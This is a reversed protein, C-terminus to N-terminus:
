ELKGRAQSSPLLSPNGLLMLNLLAPLPDWVSNKKNQERFEGRRGLLLVESCFEARFGWQLSHDLSPLSVGRQFAVPVPVSGLRCRLAHGGESRLTTGLGPATPAPSVHLTGPGPRARRGWFRCRVFGPCRRACQKPLASSPLVTM